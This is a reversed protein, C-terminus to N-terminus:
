FFFTEKETHLDTERVCVRERDRQRDTQRDTERERRGRPVLVWWSREATFHSPGYDVVVASCPSFFFFFFAAVGVPTSVSVSTSIDTQCYCM